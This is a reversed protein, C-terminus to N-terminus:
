QHITSTSSRTNKYVTSDEEENKRKQSRSLKTKNYQDRCSKHWSAKKELLTNAIGNGDDFCNLRIKESLEGIKEFNTLDEEMTKYGVGCDNRKSNAPCQLSECTDDQCLICLDWRFSDPHEASTSPDRSVKPFKCSM